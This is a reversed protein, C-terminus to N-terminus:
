AFFTLVLSALAHFKTVPHHGCGYINLGCIIQLEEGKHNGRHGLSGDSHSHGCFSDAVGEFYCKLQRYWPKEHRKGQEPAVINTKWSHNVAVLKTWFLVPVAEIETGSASVIVRCVLEEKM